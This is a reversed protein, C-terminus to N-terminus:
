QAYYREIQGGRRRLEAVVAAEFEAQNCVLGGPIEVQCNNEGRRYAETIADATRIVMARDSSSLM